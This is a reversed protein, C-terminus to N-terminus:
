VSTPKNKNVLELLSEEVVSSQKPLIPSTWFFMVLASPGVKKSLVDKNKRVAERLLRKIRNRDVAKKHLKKSVSVGIRLGDENQRRLVVMRVSDKTRWKGESFLAALDKKGKLKFKRSYGQSKM